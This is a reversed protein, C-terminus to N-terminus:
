GETESRVSAGCVGCVGDVICHGNPHGMTEILHQGETCHRGETRPATCAALHWELREKTHASGAVSQGGTRVVARWYLRQAGATPASDQSGPDTGPTPQISTAAM